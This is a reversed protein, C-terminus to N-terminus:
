ILSIGSFLAGILLKIGIAQLFTIPQLFSGRVETGNRTVVEKGGIVPVAVANWLFMLVLVSIVFSIIAVAILALISGTGTTAASSATAGLASVQAPNIGVNALQHNILSTLLSMTTATPRASDNVEDDQLILRM